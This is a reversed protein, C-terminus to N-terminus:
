SRELAASSPPVVALIAAGPLLWGRGEIRDPNSAWAPRRRVYRTCIGAKAFTRPERHKECWELYKDFVEAISLGDNTISKPAEPKQAM